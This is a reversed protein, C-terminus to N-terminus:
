ILSSLSLDAFISKSIQNFGAIKVLIPLSLSRDSSDPAKLESRRLFFKEEARRREDDSEISGVTREGLGPRGSGHHGAPPQLDIKTGGLKFSDLEPQSWFRGM